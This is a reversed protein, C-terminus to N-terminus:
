ETQQPQDRITMMQVVVWEMDLALGTQVKHDMDQHVIDVVMVEQLM